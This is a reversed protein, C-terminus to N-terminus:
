QKGKNDKNVRKKGITLKWEDNIAKRTRIKWKENNNEGSKM